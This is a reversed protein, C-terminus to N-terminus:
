SACVISHISEPFDQESSLYMTSLRLPKESRDWIPQRLLVRQTLPQVSIDSESSYIGAKADIKLTFSVNRSGYTTNSMYIVDLFQNDKSADALYGRFFSATLM